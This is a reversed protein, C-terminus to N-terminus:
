DVLPFRQAEVRYLLMCDVSRPQMPSISETTRIVDRFTHQKSSETSTSPEMVVNEIQSMPTTLEAQAAVVDYQNVNPSFLTTLEAQAAVVDYQNVNQNFINERENLVEEVIISEPVAFKSLKQRKDDMFQISNFHRGCLVKNQNYLSHLSEISTWDENPWCYKAWVRARTINTTGPNPFRHYTVTMDEARTRGCKACKRHNNVSM